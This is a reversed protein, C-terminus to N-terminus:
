ETIEWGLLEAVERVRVEAMGGYASVSYSESFTGQGDDNISLTARDKQLILTAKVPKRRPCAEDAETTALSVGCFICVNDNEENSWCWVHPKNKM